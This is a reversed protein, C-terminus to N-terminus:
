EVKVRKSKRVIAMGAALFIVGLAGSPAGLKWGFVYNMAIFLIFAFGIGAMIYGAIAKNNSPLTTM